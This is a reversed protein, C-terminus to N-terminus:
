FFEKIQSKISFYNQEKINMNASVVPFKKKKWGSPGAGENNRKLSIDTRGVKDQETGCPISQREVGCSM